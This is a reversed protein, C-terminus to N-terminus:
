KVSSTDLHFFFQGGPKIFPLIHVGSIKFHKKVFVHIQIMNHIVAVRIILYIEKHVAIHGVLYRSILIMQLVAIIQQNGRINLVMGNEM